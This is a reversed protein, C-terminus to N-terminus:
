GQDESGAPAFVELHQVPLFDFSELHRYGATAMEALLDQRTMAHGPHNLLGFFGTLEEKMEVVAVRGGPGLDAQLRSFYTRRDDIHHYTNCLFVLDIGRDPLLPDGYEGLVAEVNAAGRAAAERALADVKDQEVEVAYVKGSPGAAAALPFVFYGDGAGVDAIRDGPLVDLAAVVREPQQWAARRPIGALDLKTLEAWSTAAILAAALLVAVATLKLIKKRRTM